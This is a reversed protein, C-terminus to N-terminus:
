YGHPDKAGKLPNLIWHQLCLESRTNSHSHHLSASTAEILGRAQFSGYAVLAVRFFLYIIVFLDM